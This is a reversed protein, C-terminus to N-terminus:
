KAKKKEEQEAKKKAKEAEKEAKKRAKEEEKAKKKAEKAAAREEKTMKEVEAMTEALTTMVAPQSDNFQMAELKSEMKMASATQYQALLATAFPIIVQRQMPNPNTKAKEESKGM